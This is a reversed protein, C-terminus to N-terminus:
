GLPFSAAIEWEKNNHRLLSIASTTFQKQFELGNFYEWAKRFDSKALDRNAITIHPHFARQEKKFSFNKLSM